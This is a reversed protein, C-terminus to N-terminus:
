AEKVPVGIVDDADFLEAKLTLVTSGWLRGECLDLELHEKRASLRLFYILCNKVKGDRVMWEPCDASASWGSVPKEQARYNDIRLVTKAFYTGECGIGNRVAKRLEEQMNEFIEAATDAYKETNEEIFQQYAERVADNQPNALSARFRLKEEEEAMEIGAQMMYDRLAALYRTRCEVSEFTWHPTYYYIVSLIQCSGERVLEAMQTQVEELVRAFETQQQELNIQNLEEIFLM